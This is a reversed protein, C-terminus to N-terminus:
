IYYHLAPEMSWYKCYWLLM